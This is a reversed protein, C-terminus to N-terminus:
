FPSCGPTPQLKHPDAGDVNELLVPLLGQVGLAKIFWVGSNWLPLLGRLLIDTIQLPIVVVRYMYPGINQNYLRATELWVVPYETFTVYLGSFVIFV